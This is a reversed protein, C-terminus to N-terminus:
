YKLFWADRKGFGILLQFGTADLTAGNPYEPLDTSSRSPLEPFHAAIDRWQTTTDDFLPMEDGDVAIGGPVPW